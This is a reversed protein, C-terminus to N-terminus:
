RLSHLFPALVDATVEGISSSDVVGLPDLLFGTPFGTIQYLDAVKGVPDLLVPFNIGLEQVLATVEEKNDEVSVAVVTFNQEQFRKQAQQLDTLDQKVFPNRLSFFRLFVARGRFDSLSIQTGQTDSLSFDAARSLKLGIGALYGAQERGGTKRLYKSASQKDSFVHSRCKNEKRSYENSEIFYALSADIEIGSLEDVVTIAANGERIQEAIEAHAELWTRACCLSCFLNDKGDDTRIAVRSIPLLSTGDLLCTEDSRESRGSLFAFALLLLFFLASFLKTKQQKM